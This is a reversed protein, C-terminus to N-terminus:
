LVVQFEEHRGGDFVRENVQKMYGLGVQIVVMVVSAGIQVALMWSHSALADRARIM